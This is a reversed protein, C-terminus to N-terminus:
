MTRYFIRAFDVNGMFYDTEEKWVIGLTKKAPRALYPDKGFELDLDVVITPLCTVAASERRPPVWHMPVSRVTVWEHARLYEANTEVLVRRLNHHNKVWESFDRTRMSGKVHDYHLWSTSHLFRYHISM